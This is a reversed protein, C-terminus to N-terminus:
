NADHAARRHRRLVDGGFDDRLHRLVSHAHNADDQTNDYEILLVPSTVCYYHGEAVRTGGAWAFALDDAAVDMAEEWWERAYAEPLRDLYRRVLADFARRAGADLDARRVGQPLVSPDVVPDMGSLIDAPAMDSTIAQSLQAPSMQALLDRALDEEPGLLRAGALPGEPIRAPEAGVFHPTVTVAGDAVSVHVGVHHGNFRCGWPQDSGPTGYVRVWYRDGSPKEGTVLRRREREVEIAGEVLRAGHPSHSAAVLAKVADLVDPPAAELSLGPRDGPLYSWQTWTPDDLVAFAADRQAPSLMATLADAATSLAQITAATAAASQAADDLTM